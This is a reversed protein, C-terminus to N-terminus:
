LPLTRRGERPCPITWHRLGNERAYGPLRDFGFGVQAPTHADSAPCFALGRDLAWRLVTPGPYFEKCPKRLGATSIELLMGTEALADLAQGVAARGDESDLFRAHTERSFIKVLDVHPAVTYRRSRAMSAVLEYYQLYANRRADEDLTEWEAQSFDFGWVGIFHVGGLSYDFPASELFQAFFPEQGAVYDVEVGLLIEAEPFARRAALVEEVYVPFQRLVHEQFEDAPYRFGEPRPAHESMGIVRVGHDLCARIMAAVDHTGHGHSTHLHFDAAPM